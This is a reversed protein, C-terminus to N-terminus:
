FTATIVVTDSYDGPVPGGAMPTVLEACVKHNNISKVITGTGNLASSMTWPTSCNPQYLQYPLYEGGSQMRRMGGSAHLGNDITISYPTEYTCRVGVNGDARVGGAGAKMASVSGWVGFNVDGVKDLQCKELVNATATITSSISQFTTPPTRCFTPVSVEPAAVGFAVRLTYSSSYSGPRVRDQANRGDYRLIYDYRNNCSSSSNATCIYGTTQKGEPAVWYGGYQTLLQFSLRSDPAASVYHSYSDRYDASKHPTLYLCHGVRTGPPATCETRFTARLQVQSGAIIDIEVPGLADVFQATTCTQARLGTATFALLMTAVAALVLLRSM